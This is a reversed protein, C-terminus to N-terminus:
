QNSSYSLKLWKTGNWMLMLTAGDTLDIPGGSSGVTVNTSNTFRVGNSASAQGVLCLMQGDYVGPSLAMIASSPLVTSPVIIYGSNEVVISDNGTGNHCATEALNVAGASAAFEAYPVSMLKTTGMDIFSTGGNVDIEVQLFYSTVAWTLNSFNGSVINGGGIVVTFIGMPSSTVTDTERYAVPGNISDSRFSFRVNVHQGPM